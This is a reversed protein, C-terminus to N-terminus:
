LGNSEEIQLPQAKITSYMLGYFLNKILHTYFMM